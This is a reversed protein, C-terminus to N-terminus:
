GRGFRAALLALLAAALLFQPSFPAAVTAARAGAAAQQRAVDARLPLTASEGGGRNLYLKTLPHM